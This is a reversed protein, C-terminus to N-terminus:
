KNRIQELKNYLFEANDLCSQFNNSTTHHYLFDAIFKIEEKM